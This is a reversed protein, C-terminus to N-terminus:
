DRRELLVRKYSEKFAAVSQAGRIEDPISNWLRPGVVSFSKNM